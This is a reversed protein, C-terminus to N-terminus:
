GAKRLLMEIQQQREASLGEIRVRKHRAMHGSLITVARKPVDCLDAVFGILCENAKGDVPPAHLRIKYADGHRGVLQTKAAGPQVYVALIWGNDANSTSM